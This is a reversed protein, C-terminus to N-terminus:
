SRELLQYGFSQTRRLREARSLLLSLVQFVLQQSKPIPIPRNMKRGFEYAYIVQAPKWGCGGFFAERDAVTFKMKSGEPLKANMTKQVRLTDANRMIFDHIWFNFNPQAKMDAGIGRVQEEELYPLLGETIVLINKARAGMRFFFERRADPDLLDCAARELRCRPTEGALCKEKYALIDPLDAEIWLLQAPLALRYPRTDLGAALNLVMDAGRNAIADLILGDLACTRNVISWATYQAAPMRAAILRGREGSLKEALPDEFLADPRKTEAARLAAVWIATDSIHKVETTETTM